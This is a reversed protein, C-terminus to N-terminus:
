SFEWSFNWVNEGFDVFTAAFANSISNLADVGVTHQQFIRKNKEIM